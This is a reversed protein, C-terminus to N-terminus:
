LDCFFFLLHFTFCLKHCHFNALGQNLEEECTAGARRKWIGSMGDHNSVAGFAHLGWNEGFKM